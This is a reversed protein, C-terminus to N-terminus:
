PNPDQGEDEGYHDTVFTDQAGVPNPHHEGDRDAASTSSGQETGDSEGELEDTGEGLDTGRAALGDEHKESDSM